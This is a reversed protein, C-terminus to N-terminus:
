PTAAPELRADRSPDSWGVLRAGFEGPDDTPHHQIVEFALKITSSSKVTTWEPPAVSVQPDGANPVPIDLEVAYDVTMSVDLLSSGTASVWAEDVVLHRPDTFSLIRPAPVGGGPLDAGLVAAGEAHAVQLLRALLAERLAADDAISHRWGTALERVRPIQAVLDRLEFYLGVRGAHGRDALETALEPALEAAYRTESFAAHDASVLLLPGPARSLLALVTEWVLAPRYGHGEGNFPRRRDAARQLLRIHPTGPLALIEGGTARLVRVLDERYPLRWPRLDGGRASPVRGLAEHAAVLRERAAQVARRQNAEAEIVVAEPVGIRLRGAVAEDRLLRGAASDLHRDRGGIVTADLVVWPVIDTGQSIPRRYGRPARASPASTREM